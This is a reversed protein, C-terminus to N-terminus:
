GIKNQILFFIFRKELNKLNKPTPEIEETIRICGQYYSFYHFPLSQEILINKM